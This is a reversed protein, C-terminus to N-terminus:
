QMKVTFEVWNSSPGVKGAGDVARVSWRYFKGCDVLVSTSIQTLGTLQALTQWQQDGSHTELIVQYESIGSPDNVPSWTLIVQPICALVGEPSITAPAPPPTNDAPSPDPPTATPPPDTPTPSVTATPRPTAGSEACTGFFDTTFTRTVSAPGWVSGTQVSVRWYYETCDTLTDRSVQSFFPNIETEGLESMMNPGAFSPDESLEAQLVDPLCPEPYRWSLLVFETTLVAGDEPGAPNPAVLAEPDCSPGTWFCRPRSYDGMVDNIIGAVRWQYLTLPELEEVPSWETSAGITESSILSDDDENWESWRYCSNNEVVEIQYNRPRCDHLYDLSFAPTLDDVIEYDVPFALESLRLDIALLCYPYRVETPPAPLDCGPLLSCTLLMVITFTFVWLHPKTM